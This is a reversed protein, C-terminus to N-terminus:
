PAPPVEVQVPQSTATNGSNDTAQVITTYIVPKEDSPNTTTKFTGEYQGNKNPTLVIEVTEPDDPRFIKAVVKKLPEGSVIDALVEVWGGKNTWEKPVIASVGIVKLLTAMGLSGGCGVLLGAVVPAVALLAGIRLRGRYFM